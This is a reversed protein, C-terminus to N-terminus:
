KARELAVGALDKGLEQNRGTGPPLLMRVRVNREVVTASATPPSSPQSAAVFWSLNPSSALAACAARSFTKVPSALSVPWGSQVLFILTDATIPTLFQRVSDSDDAPNM